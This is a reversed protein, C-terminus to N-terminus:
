SERLSERTAGFAALQEPVGARNSSENRHLDTPPEGVVGLVQPFVCARVCVCVGCRPTLRVSFFDGDVRAQDLRAQGNVAELLGLTFTLPQSPLLGRM